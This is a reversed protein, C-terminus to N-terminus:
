LKNKTKNEKIPEASLESNLDNDLSRITFIKEAYDSMGEDKDKYRNILSDINTTRNIQYDFVLCDLIDTQKKFFASRFIVDHSVHINAHEKLDPSTLLYNALDFHKNHFAVRLPSGNEGHCMTHIDAHKSLEPSTLLYQVLNMDKSECADILCQDIDYQELYQYREKNM